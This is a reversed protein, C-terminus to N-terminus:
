PTILGRFTELDSAPPSSIFEFGEFVIEMFRGPNSPPGEPTDQSRHLRTRPNM